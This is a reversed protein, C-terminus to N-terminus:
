VIYLGMIIIIFVNMLNMEPNNIEKKKKKIFFILGGIYVISKLICYFVPVEFPVIFTYPYCM